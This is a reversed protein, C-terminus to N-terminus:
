LSVRLQASPSEGVRTPAVLHSNFKEDGADPAPFRPKPPPYIATLRHVLSPQLMAKGPFHPLSLIEPLGDCFIPSRRVPQHTSSIEEITKAVDAITRRRSTAETVAYPLPPWKTSALVTPKQNPGGTTTRSLDGDSSRTIGLKRARASDVLFDRAQKVTQAYNGTASIICDLKQSIRCHM